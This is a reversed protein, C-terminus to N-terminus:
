YAQPHTCPRRMSYQFAGHIFLGKMRLIRDFGSGIARCIIFVIKKM